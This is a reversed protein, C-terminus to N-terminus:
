LLVVVRGKNGDGVNVTVQLCFRVVCASIKSKEYVRLACTITAYLPLTLSRAQYRIGRQLALAM